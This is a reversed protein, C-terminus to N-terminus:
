ADVYPVESSNSPCLKGMPPGGSNAVSLRGLDGVRVRSGSSGAPGPLSSIM